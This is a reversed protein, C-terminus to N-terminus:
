EKKQQKIFDIRELTSNYGYSSLDLMEKNQSKVSRQDNSINNLNYRGPKNAYSSVSMDNSQIHM